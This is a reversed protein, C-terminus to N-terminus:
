SLPGVDAFTQRIEERDAGRMLLLTLLIRAKPGDLSGAYVVGRRILDTESGPFGGYTSRLVEGSGARSALVVPMREILPELIGPAAVEGSVHGGGFGELVLGAFGAPAVYRLLRGDDGLSMKLLCVPPPVADDSVAVHFRRAPRVAIRVDREALWGLPGSAMSRFTGPNATHSKRVFRAAHIEDNMVVLAGLGRAVASAAVRIAAIVNAPGDASPLSANRLAGTVVVPDDGACLLDLGFAVEEITDTGQTVVVGRCGQAVSERAAKAIDILDHVTMLSSALHRSPRPVVDAIEDVGPLQRALEGVDLSPTAGVGPQVASAITGGYPVIAVRPRESMEHGAETANRAFVGPTEFFSTRLPINSRVMDGHPGVFSRAAASPTACGAPCQSWEPELLTRLLRDM